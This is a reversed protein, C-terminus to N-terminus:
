FPIRERLGRPMSKMQPGNHINGIMIELATSPLLHDAIVRAAQSPAWAVLERRTAREQLEILDRKWHWIGFGSFGMGWLTVALDKPYGQDAGKFKLRPRIGLTVAERYAHDAFWNTGISAPTLMGIQAGFKGEGSCKEAWTDIDDFEPNLWQLGDIENWAQKLSDTRLDFWRHGVANFEHAALDLVIQGFRAQFAELFDDPTAFDQKSSGRAFAAGTKKQAATLPRSFWGRARKRFSIVDEMQGEPAVSDRPPMLAAISAIVKIFRSLRKSTPVRSPAMRCNRGIHPSRNSRQTKAHGTPASQWWVAAQNSCASRKVNGFRAALHDCLKSDIEVLTLDVGCADGRVVASALAGTGANPELVRDGSKIKALGVMRAAVPASTAFLQPVGVASVGAKLSERMTDFDTLAPTERAQRPAHPIPAPLPAPAASGPKDHVKSDTLFVASLGRKGDSQTVVATRVKHSRGVISTAKYDAHIKAYEGKTMEVQDLIMPESRYPSDTTISEARYNCLPLTAKLSKPKVPAVFGAADLMAREYALRNACHAVWRASRDSLGALGPRALESAQEITIIKNDLASWLSMQGESQSAEPARPYTALPFSFSQSMGPFSALYMAAKLSLNETAWAKLLKECLALDRGAKRQDAEITKVRRARVAPLEKYKAAAVAGAARRTWYKSTHWLQVAKKMGNEIRQADKRARKESHHGVLIPQGLPIGGAIAAVHDRARHAETERKDSYDEFRDAREEARDVLSTDEDGIEGCLEILLDARVPTWKPAVFLKQKPAWSFGAAKVRAYTEADLRDLAYMRLKNDEPSYTATLSNMNKIYPM